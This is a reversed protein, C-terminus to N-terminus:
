RGGSVGKVEAGESRVKFAPDHWIDKGLPDDIMTDWLAWVFLVLAVGIRLGFGYTM